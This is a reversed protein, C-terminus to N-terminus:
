GVMFDASRVLEMDRRGEVGNTWYAVAQGIPMQINWGCVTRAGKLELLGCTRVNGLLDKITSTLDRQLAEM